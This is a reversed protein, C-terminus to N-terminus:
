VSVCRKVPRTAKNITKRPKRNMMKDDNRLLDGRIGVNSPVILSKSRKCSHRNKWDPDFIIIHQFERKQDTTLTDIYGFLDNRSFGAFSATKVDPDVRLIAEVIDLCSLSDTCHCPCACTVPSGPCFGCVCDRKKFAM